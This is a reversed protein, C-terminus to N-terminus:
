WLRDSRMLVRMIRLNIGILWRGMSAGIMVVSFMVIMVMLMFSDVGRIDVSERFRVGIFCCFLV